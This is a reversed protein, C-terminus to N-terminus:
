RFQRFQIQRALNVESPLGPWRMSTRFTYSIRVDVIAMGDGDVDVSLEYSLDNSNFNPISEIEALAAQYVGDEWTAQTAPTFKRIAGSEAATRAANCVIQHYYAIRGFDATGLAFLLILPLALAFEVM